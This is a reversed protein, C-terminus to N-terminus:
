LGAADGLGARVPFWITQMIAADVPLTYNIKGDRYSDGDNTTRLVLANAVFSIISNMIGGEQKTKADLKDILLGRYRPRVVGTCRRGRVVFAFTASSANGSRIRINEATPLFSNLQTVEFAGLSGEGILEYSKSMLPITFTASMPAGNMFGGSAAIRFPTGTNESRNMCNTALVRLKNWRLTAPTSAYPWREGYVLSANRIRISDIAVVFPIEQAIANLMKPRVRTPESSLRKNSLIDISMREVDLMEVHLAERRSLAEFDIARLTLPGGRIRFRDSNYRQLGFYADDTRTPGLAFSRLTLMHTLYSFNVDRAEYTYGDPRTYTVSDVILSSDHDNVSVHLGTTKVHGGGKLVRKWSMLDISLDGLVRRHADAAAEVHIPGFRVTLGSLEGAYEDEMDAQKNVVHLDDVVVESISLPQVYMPISAVVLNRLLSDINPIHPLRVLSTDGSTSAGDSVSKSRHQWGRVFVRPAIVRLAGLSVGGGNIVDWPTVGDVTLAPVHIRIVSGSDLTSDRYMVALNSVVLSGTVYTYDIDGIDITLKGQTAANAEVRARSRIYNVIASRINSTITDAFYLYLALGVVQLGVFVALVILAIRKWSRAM